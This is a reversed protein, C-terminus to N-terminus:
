FSVQKDYCISTWLADKNSVFGFLYQICIQGWQYKNFVLLLCIVILIRTDFSGKYVLLYENSICHILYMVLVTFIKKLSVCFAM